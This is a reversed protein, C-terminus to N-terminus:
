SYTRAEKLETADLEGSSRTRRRAHRVFHLIWTTVCLLSWYSSFSSSEILLGPTAKPGVLLSQTREDPIPHHSRTQYSPWHSSAQSLWLLGQWLNRLKWLQETTVGRSLHDAPNDEGPRHKWQSPTTYTQIETVRNAVFKKWRNLDNCIWGLGRNLRVM